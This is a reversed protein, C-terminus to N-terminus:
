TLEYEVNDSKTGIFPYYSMNPEIRTIVGVMDDNNMFTVKWKICDVRVTIVDNEKFEEVNSQDKVRLGHAGYLHGGGQYYYIYGDISAHYENKKKIIDTNSMIGISDNGPKKCKIKFEGIEGSTFAFSSIASFYYIGFNSMAGCVILTGQNKICNLYQEYILDFGMINAFIQLIIGNLEKPYRHALGFVKTLKAVYGSVLYISKKNRTSM